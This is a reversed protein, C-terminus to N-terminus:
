KLILLQKKLLDELELMVYKGLKKLEEEIEKDTYSPGLYSGKM